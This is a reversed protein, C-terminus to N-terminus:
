RLYDKIVKQAAEFEAKQKSDGEGESIKKNDLYIEVKFKQKHPPGSVEVLKYVPLKKYKTQFIEQLITKPDKYSKEKIIKKVDTLINKEVFNKTIEWGCDLFIAGIIAELSNGLVTLKGKEDFNKGILLFKEIGLKEAIKGLRERNVLAARVLSMEGESLNPFNRYLYLSTITQLVSDGLFEIRENSPLKIQPHLFLWSGHVVAELWINKNKIKVGLIKEIQKIKLLKFLKM